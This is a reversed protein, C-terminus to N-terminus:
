IRCRRMASALPVRMSSDLLRGRCSADGRCVLPRLRRAGASPRIRRTRRLNERTAEAMAPSRSLQLIGMPWLRSERRLSQWRHLSHIRSAETCIRGCLRTSLGAGARYLSTTRLLGLWPSWLIRSSQLRTGTSRLWTGWVRTSRLGASRIRSGAGRLAARRKWSGTSCLRSCERHLGRRTGRLGVAARGGLGAVVISGRSCIDTIRMEHHAEQQSLGGWHSITASGM